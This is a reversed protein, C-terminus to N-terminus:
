LKAQRQSNKDNGELVRLRLLCFDGRDTVHRSSAARGIRPRVDLRQPLPESIESYQLCVKTISYRESLSLDISDWAEHSFEYL